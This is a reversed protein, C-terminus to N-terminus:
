KRGKGKAAARDHQHEEAMLRLLKGVCPGCLEIARPGVSASHNLTFTYEIKHFLRKIAPMRDGSLCTSYGDLPANCDDCFSRKM